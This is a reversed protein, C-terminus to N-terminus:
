FHWEPARGPWPDPPYSPRAPMTVVEKMVERVGFISDLEMRLERAQELTLEVKQGGVILEIKKIISM